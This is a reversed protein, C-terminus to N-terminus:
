GSIRRLILIMVSIFWIWIEEYYCLNRFVKYLCGINLCFEEVFFFVFFCVLVEYDLLYCGVIKCNLFFFYLFGNLFGIGRSSLGGGLFFLRVFYFGGGYCLLVFYCLLVLIM